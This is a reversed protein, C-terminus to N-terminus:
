YTGTMVSLRGGDSILISGNSYSGARSTLYLITGAMEEDGGFRKAPIFRQDDFAETEPKRNQILVSALDSPYIGPAIANVRIGFRALQTSAHKTVQMIAAKSTLYPPSSTWHRSFASISTPFIVQSQISPVESGETIPRGFGSQLAHRNGADLLQLFATMTFFAATINLHLTENMEDMSFKTFLTERLEPISATPNFRVPPGISGSNAIVLNVYGVDATIQDVVSQLDQKSTVDCRLPVISPHEKAAKELVDLRRGLIYVKHAGNFALARAMTLGIGSGGGTIVAVLGDVRFIDNANVSVM